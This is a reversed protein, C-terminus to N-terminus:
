IGGWRLHLLDMLDDRANVGGLVYLGGGEGDACGAHAFREPAAGPAEGPSVWRGRIAAAGDGDGDGLDLRLCTVEGLVESWGDWGGYCGVYVPGGGAGGGGVHCVTHSCRGRGQGDGGDKEGEPAMEVETWSGGGPRYRYVWADRLAVPERPASGPATEPAAVGGLVLMRIEGGLPVACAAHMMRASPSPSSSGQGSGGELRTWGGAGFPHAWLDDRLEGGAGAGGFVLMIGGLAAAAHSHRPAPVPGVSREPELLEWPGSSGRCRWLEGVPPPPAADEDKDKDKDEDEDEGPDAGRRQGGFALAVFGEGGPVAAAVATHGMMAAPGHGSRQGEPLMRWGGGDLNLVADSYSGSPSGSPSSPPVRRSGSRISCGGVVRLYRGLRVLAAGGGVPRPCPPLLTSTWRHRGGRGDGGGEGGKGDEGGGDVSDEDDDTGNEDGDDDVAPIEELYFTAPRFGGGPSASSDGM